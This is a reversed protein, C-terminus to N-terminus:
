MDPLGALCSHGDLREFVLAAAVRPEAIFLWRDGHGGPCCVALGAYEQLGTAYWNRRQGSLFDQVVDGQRSFEALVRPLQWWLRRGPHRNIGSALNRLRGVVVLLAVGVFLKGQRM